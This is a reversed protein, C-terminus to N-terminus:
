FGDWTLLGVEFNFNKDDNLEIGIQLNYGSEPGNTEM